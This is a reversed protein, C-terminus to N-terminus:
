WKLDVANQFSLFSLSLSFFSPLSPHFFFSFSFPFYPFLPPLSIPLSFLSPYSPFSLYPFFHRPSLSLSSLFRFFLNSLFLYIIQIQLLYLVKLFEYNYLIQRGICSDYFIPKIGPNLMAAWELIRAQLIGHVSSGPLNCNMANCQTLCLQLSKACM